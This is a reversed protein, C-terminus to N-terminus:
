SFRARTHEPCRAGHCCSIIARARDSFLERDDYSDRLAARADLLEPRRQVLAEFAEHPQMADNLVILYAWTLTAHYKDPVGLMQTLKRLHRVYRPVAQELPM